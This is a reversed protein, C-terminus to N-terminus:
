LHSEPDWTATAMAYALLQLEIPGRAQSSGHAVPAAWFLMCAYIFLFESLPDEPKPTIM